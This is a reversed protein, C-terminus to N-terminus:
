PYNSISDSRRRGIIQRVIHHQKKHVILVQFKAALERGGVVAVSENAFSASVASGM